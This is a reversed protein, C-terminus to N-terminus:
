IDLCKKIDISRYYSFMKEKQKIEFIELNEIRKEIDLIYKKLDELAVKYNFPSKFYSPFKLMYSAIEKQIINKNIYLEDQIINSKIQLIDLTNENFRHILNDTEIIKLLGIAYADNESLSLPDNKEVLKQIDEETKDYLCFKKYKDFICREIIDSPTIIIQM